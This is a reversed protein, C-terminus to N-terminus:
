MSITILSLVPTCGTAAVATFGLIVAVSIKSTLGSM